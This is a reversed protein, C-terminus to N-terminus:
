AGWCDELNRSQKAAKVEPIVKEFFKMNTGDPLVPNWEELEAETPPKQYILYGVIEKGATAVILSCEPNRSHYLHSYRDLIWAKLAAPGPLQWPIVYFPHTANAALDMEYMAVFDEKTAIRVTVSM